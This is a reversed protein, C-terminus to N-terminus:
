MLSIFGPKMMDGLKFVHQGKSCVVGAVTIFFVKASVEAGRNAFSFGLLCLSEQIQFKCLRRSVHHEVGTESTMVRIAM